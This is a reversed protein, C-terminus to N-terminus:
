QLFRDLSIFIEKIKEISNVRRFGINIEKYEARPTQFNPHNNRYEEVTKIIELSTYTEGVVLNYARLIFADENILKKCSERKQPCIGQGFVEDGLCITDLGNFV